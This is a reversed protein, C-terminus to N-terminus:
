RAVAQIVGCGIKEGADGSPQTTFDDRQAHIIVSKGTLEKVTLRDDFFTSWAYGRDAFLPLLDGAHRPHPRGFPNYHQGAGAFPPTCDGGEHIHMAFFGTGANEQVPPLGSVEAAVLIGGCSTEYFKVIGGLGPHDANGVLTATAAPLYSGLVMAFYDSLNM